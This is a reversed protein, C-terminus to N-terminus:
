SVESCNKTTKLEELFGVFINEWNRAEGKFFPGVLLPVKVHQIAGLYHFLIGRSIQGSKPAM